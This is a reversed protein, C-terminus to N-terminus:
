VSPLIWEQEFEINGSELRTIELINSIFNSLRQAEDRATSILDNAINQELTGSKEMRKYIDLSSIISCLPTKLDHSISSLLISRLKEREENIRSQYMMESLKIRELIVASQAALSNILRKLSSGFKNSKPIKIGLVGIKNNNAIM